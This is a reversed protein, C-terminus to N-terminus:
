TKEQKGDYTRENNKNMQQYTEISTLSKGKSIFTNRNWMEYCFERNEYTTTIPKLGSLVQNQNWNSDENKYKM